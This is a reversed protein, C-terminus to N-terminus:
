GAVPGQGQTVDLEESRGTAGAWGVVLGAAFVVSGFEVLHDVDSHVLLATWAAVGIVAAAPRGRAAWLMGGLGVVGLLVVGVCGTESGIQLVASHASLTDPDSALSTAGRFSGPGSGTIARADWLAMADHWLQRRVPDFLRVAWPAFTAQRAVGVVVCAATVTTVGGVVVALRPWARGRPRRWWALAVVAVVPVILAAGGRSRNLVTALVALAIAVGLFWRRRPSSGLLALGCLASVQVALAANANAYGTPQKGPGATLVAGLVLAGAVVLLALATGATVPHRAMVTGVAVGAVLVVPSLVYPVLGVATGDLAVTLVTSWTAWAVLVFLGLAEAWGVLAWLRRM